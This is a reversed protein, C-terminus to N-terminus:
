MDLQGDQLDVKAANSSQGNNIGYCYLLLLLVFDRFHVHLIGRTGWCKTLSRCKQTQSGFDIPTWGRATTLMDVLEASSGKLM